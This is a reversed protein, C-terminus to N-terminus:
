EANEIMDLTNMDLILSFIWVMKEYRIKYKYKKFLTVINLYSTNM